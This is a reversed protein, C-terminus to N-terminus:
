SLFKCVVGKYYDLSNKFKQFTNINFIATRQTTFNKCRQPQLERDYTPNAGPKFGCFVVFVKVTSFFQEFNQAIDMVKSFHGPYVIALYTPLFQVLKTM